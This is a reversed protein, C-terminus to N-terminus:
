YPCQVVLMPGEHAVWSLDNDSVSWSKAEVTGDTCNLAKEDCLGDPIFTVCEKTLAIEGRGAWAYFVLTDAPVDHLMDRLEGVTLNRAPVPQSM